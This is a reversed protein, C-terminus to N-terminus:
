VGFRLCDILALDLSSNWLGNGAVVVGFDFFDADIRKCSTVGFLLSLILLAVIKLRETEVVIRFSGHVCGMIASIALSDTEVGFNYSPAASHVGQMETTFAVVCIILFDTSNLISVSSMNSVGVFQLSAFLRYLDSGFKLRIEVSCLTLLVGIKHMDRYPELWNASLLIILPTLITLKFHDVGHAVVCLFSDSLEDFSIEIKSSGSKSAVGFLSLLKSQCISRANRVGISTIPRSDIDGIRCAVWRIDLAICTLRNRKLKYRHFTNSHHRISITQNTKPTQM